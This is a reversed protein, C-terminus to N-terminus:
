GQEDDDVLERLQHGFRLVRAIGGAVEEFGGAGCADSEYQGAL